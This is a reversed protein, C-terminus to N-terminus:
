SPSIFGVNKKGGKAGRADVAYYRRQNCPASSRIRSRKLYCTSSIRSGPRVPVSQKGAGNKQIAPLGAVREKRGTRPKMGQPDAGGAAFQHFRSAPTQPLAAFTVRRRRDVKEHSNWVPRATSGEPHFLVQSAIGASAPVWTAAARAPRSTSGPKRRSAHQIPQWRSGYQQKRPQRGQRTKASVPM